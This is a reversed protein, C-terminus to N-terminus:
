KELQMSAPLWSELMQRYLICIEVGGIYRAHMYVCVEGLSASFQVYNGVNILEWHESYGVVAGGPYIVTTRPLSILLVTFENSDKMQQLTQRGSAPVLVELDNLQVCREAVQM